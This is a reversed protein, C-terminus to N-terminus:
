CSKQGAKLDKMNRDLGVWLKLESNNCLYTIPFIIRFEIQSSNKFM